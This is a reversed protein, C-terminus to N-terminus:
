SKRSINQMMHLILCALNWLHPQYPSTFSRLGHRTPSPRSHVIPITGLTLPLTSLWYWIYILCFPIIVELWAESLTYPKSGADIQIALCPWDLQHAHSCCQLCQRFLQLWMLSLKATHNNEPPWTDRLLFMATSEYHSLPYIYPCSLTDPLWTSELWTKLERCLWLLLGATHILGIHSTHDLMKDLYSQKGRKCKQALAEPDSYFIFKSRFELHSRLLKTKWRRERLVM